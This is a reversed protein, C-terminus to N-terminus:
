SHLQNAWNPWNHGISMRGCNSGSWRGHQYSLLGAILRGGQVPQLPGKVDVLPELFLPVHGEGCRVHAETLQDAGWGTLHLKWAASNMRLQSGGGQAGSRPSHHCGGLRLLLMQSWRGRLVRIQLGTSWRLATAVATSRLLGACPRPSLLGLRCAVAGPRRTGQSISCAARWDRSEPQLPNGRSASEVFGSLWRCQSPPVAAATQPWPHRVACGVPEPSLGEQPLLRGVRGRGERYRSDGSPMQRSPCSPNLM